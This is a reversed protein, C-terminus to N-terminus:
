SNLYADMATKAQAASNTQAILLQGFKHRTANSNQVAVVTHSTSVPIFAVIKTAQDAYTAQLQAETFAM